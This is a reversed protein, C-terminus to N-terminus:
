EVQKGDEVTVRQAVNERGAKHLAHRAGKRKDLWQQLPMREMLYVTPNHPRTKRRGDDDACMLAEAQENM